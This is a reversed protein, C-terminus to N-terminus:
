QLAKLKNLIINKSVVGLSTDMLKGNKFFLLTPVSCVDFSDAIEPFDDVNITGFTVGNSERAIEDITPELIKCPGCWPAWFDIITIGNKIASSFTDKNLEKIM